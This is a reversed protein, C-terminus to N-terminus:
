PTYTYSTGSYLTPPARTFHLFHKVLSSVPFRLGVTFQERTIYITNDAKGVTSTGLGDSIELNIEAPVQSYLRLEETSMATVLSSATPMEQPTVRRRGAQSSSVEKYGRAM